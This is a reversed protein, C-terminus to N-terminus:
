LLNFTSPSNSLVTKFIMNAEEEM